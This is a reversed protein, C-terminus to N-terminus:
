NGFDTNCFQTSRHRIHKQNNITVYIQNPALINYPHKYNRKNPKLKFIKTCRTGYLLIMININMYKM